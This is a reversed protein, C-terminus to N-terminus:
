PVRNDIRFMLTHFCALKNLNMEMERGGGQRSGSDRQSQFRRPFADHSLPNYPERYWYWSQCLAWEYFLDCNGRIKLGIVTCSIILLSCREPSMIVWLHNVVSRLCDRIGSNIM